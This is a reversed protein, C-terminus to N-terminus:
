KNTSKEAAQEKKTLSKEVVEPNELKSIDSEIAKIDETKASRLKKKLEEIKPQNAAILKDKELGALHAKHQASGINIIGAM